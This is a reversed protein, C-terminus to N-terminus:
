KKMIKKSRQTPPIRRFIGKNEAIFSNIKNPSAGNEGGFILDDKKYLKYRVNAGYVNKIKFGYKKCNDFLLKNTKFEGKSSAYKQQITIDSEKFRFYQLVEQIDSFIAVMHPRDDNSWKRNADTVYELDKKLRTKIVVFGCSSARVTRTNRQSLLVVILKNLLKLDQRKLGTEKSIIDISTMDDYIHGENVLKLYKDQREEISSNLAEEFREKLIETM